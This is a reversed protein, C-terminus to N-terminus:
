SAYKISCGYARTVAPSVPKGNNLQSVANKVYNMAKKVDADNATPRDDIAGKYALIGDPKIIYMHPTTRADYLRGITGEPDLVVSNPAADRSVTLEDAAKGSVHGQLGPASSIISLWVLGQDAADKQLSQMNQTRYHKKVYPCDHNTWELIVTRGRLESLKVTNGKSDVGSFDPAPKGIQPAALAAAVPMSVAILAGALLPKLNSILGM